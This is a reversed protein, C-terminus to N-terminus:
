GEESFFSAEAFAKRSKGGQQGFGGLPARWKLRGITFRSEFKIM